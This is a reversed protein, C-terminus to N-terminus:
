HHHEERITRAEGAAAFARARGSVLVAVSGFRFLCSRTPPWINTLEVVVVTQIQTQTTDFDFHRIGSFWSSPQQNITELPSANTQKTPWALSAAPWFKSHQHSSIANFKERERM